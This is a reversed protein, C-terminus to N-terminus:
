ALWASGALSLMSALWVCAHQVGGGGEEGRADRVRPAVVNVDGGLLM